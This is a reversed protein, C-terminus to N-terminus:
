KNQFQLPRVAANAYADYRRRMEKVKEPQQAALDKTEGPDDHLNFLEMKKERSQKLAAKDLVLKLKDKHRYLDKMMGTAGRFYDAIFDYPSVSNVGNFLPYGAANIQQVWDLHHNFMVNVEEAAAVIRDGPYRNKLWIPPPM